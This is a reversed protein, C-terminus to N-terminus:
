VTFKADQLVLALNVVAQEDSLHDLEPPLGLKQRFHEAADRFLAQRVDPEIQDRRLVLDIVLDREDRGIRTLIRNRVAPDAEYSNVRNKAATLSAPLTQRADVIVITDAVIDGLRRHWRDIVSTIGGVVMAFPLNDVVRLACRTLVDQFTLKNGRASIVRIKFVRKGPSQGAWYLEFLTFYSFDLIFIGLIILAISVGGGLRAFILVIAVYGTWILLQDVFWAMARAVVGAVPYHFAVQEPTTIQFRHLAPLKAISPPNTM